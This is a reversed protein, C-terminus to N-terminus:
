GDEWHLLLAIGIFACAIAPTWAALAVPLSGSMGLAGVLDTVFRVIFGTLLGASVLWVVGGRRPLRLSFLAALLVMATLLLPLALLSYFYFKHRLASFGAKELTHIFSPLEWFYMTTLSAFSDQIQSPTIDTAFSFEARREVPLGPRSLAVNKLKWQKNDLQASDADMREVFRKEKDYSFVIVDFFQMDKQTVRLAHFVREGFVSAPPEVQRLWLGSNSVALLNSRGQLYRNELQDYRLSFVAALPNFVTVWIVGIGLAAIVGPALFQWVSVGAARAVILESTRTLRTLSIMTGIMVGFPLIKELMSPQKFIAMELLVGFPVDKGAGRRVLEVIDILFVILLMVLLAGLIRMLVHRGTYLSFIVPLRM